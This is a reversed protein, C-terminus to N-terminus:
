WRRPPQSLSCGRLESSLVEVDTRGQTLRLPAHLAKAEQVSYILQKLELRIQQLERENQHAHQLRALLTNLGVGIQWLAHQQALPARV